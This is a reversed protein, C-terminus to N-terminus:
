LSAIAGGIQIIEFRWLAKSPDSSAIIVQGVIWFPHLKKFLLTGTQFELYPEITEVFELASEKGLPVSNLCDHALQAPVTPTATM